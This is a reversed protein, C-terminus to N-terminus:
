QFTWILTQMAWKSFFWCSVVPPFVLGTKLSHSPFLSISHLHSLLNLELEVKVWLSTSVCILNEAFIIFTRQNKKFEKVEWSSLHLSLSQPRTNSILRFPCASPCTGFRSSTLIGAIQAQDHALPRSFCTSFIQTSTIANGLVALDM